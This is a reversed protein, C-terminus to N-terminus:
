QRGPMAPPNGMPNFFSERTLRLIIGAIAVTQILTLLTVGAHHRFPLLAFPTYTGAVFLFITCQDIKQFLAKIRRHQVGHYIASTVFAIFMSGGYVVIAALTLMNQQPWARTVLYVLGFASAAAAGGQIVASAVEELLPRVRRTTSM